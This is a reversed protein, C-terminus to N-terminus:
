RRRSGERHSTIVCFNEREFQEVQEVPYRVSRGIRVFSPGNDQRYRWGELTRMSIRWRGCLEAQTLYINM